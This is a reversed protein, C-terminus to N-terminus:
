SVPFERVALDPPFESIDERSRALCKPCARLRVVGIPVGFTRYVYTEGTRRTRAGCKKCLRPKV